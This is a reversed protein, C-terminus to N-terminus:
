TNWTPRTSAVFRLRGFLYHRRIILQELRDLTAKDFRGAYRWHQIDDELERWRHTGALRRKRKPDRDELVSRVETEVRKLEVAIRHASMQREWNVPADIPATAAPSEPADSVAEADSSVDDEFTAKPQPQEVALTEKDVDEAQEGEEGSLSRTAPDLLSPDDESVCEQDPPEPEYADEMDPGPESPPREPEPDRNSEDQSAM